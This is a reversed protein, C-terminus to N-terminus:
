LENKSPKMWQPIKEGIDITYVDCNFGKDKILYVPITHLGTEERTERYVAQYSTEELNVKKCSVQILGEM